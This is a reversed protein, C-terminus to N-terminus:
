QFLVWHKIFIQPDLLDMDLLSPTTSVTTQPEFVSSDEIEDLVM